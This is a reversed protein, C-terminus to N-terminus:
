NEAPRTAADVVLVEIPGRRAELKLGLQEQLATFVSAGASGAPAEGVAPEPSWTLQFRYQGPLGTDNVVSRGVVRSLALAIEDMSSGATTMIGPGRDTGCGQTDPPRAACNTPDSQLQPGLRRDRRALVLAYIPAERTETHVALGFRDVLLQKLMVLMQERSPEGGASAIIDWRESTLWDPGGVLQFDQVRFINQILNRLPVNTAVVRGGPAANVRSGSDGSLNRRISAVEFSQASALGATLLGLLAVAPRIM